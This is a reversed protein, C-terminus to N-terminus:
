MIYFFRNEKKDTFNQELMAVHSLFAKDDFYKAGEPCGKVCAQCKICIGHVDEIDQPNISAMPCLEACLGCNICKSRDTLPKAKLFKAPQGDTGKPVYYPADADGVVQLGDGKALFKTDKALNFCKLAFDRVEKLDKEGPRGGALVKTFAHQCVFAAGALPCFGDEKLVQVMEALSNDFSRNGFTVIAAAPTKDGRLKEKFDPLIKNPLKGAYTPAALIVFDEPGFEYSKLRNEMRTFDIEDVPLSEIKAVHEAAALALKKTNGTPSFFICCIRNIMTDRRHHFIM